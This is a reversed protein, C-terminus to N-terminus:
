PSKRSHEVIAQLTPSEFYRTPNFNEGSVVAVKEGCVVYLWYFPIPDGEFSYIAMVDCKVGRFERQEIIPDPRDAVSFRDLERSLFIEPSQSTWRFNVQLGMERTAQPFPNLRCSRDDVNGEQRLEFMEYTDKLEGVVCTSPVNTGVESVEEGFLLNGFADSGCAGQGAISLGEQDGGQFEWVDEKADFYMIESKSDVHDLGVVHALEHIMLAFTARGRPEGWAGKSVDEAIYDADLAMVGGLARYQQKGPNLDQYSRPGGWGAVNEVHEYDEHKPLAELVETPYYNILLTSPPNVVPIPENHQILEDTEGVFEFQLGTYYRMSQIAAELVERAGEPENAPNVEYRIPECPSHFGTPNGETDYSLFRFQGNGNYGVTPLLRKPGASGFFDAGGDLIEEATSSIANAGQFWTRIDLRNGPSSWITSNLVVSLVLSSAVFVFLSRLAGNGGSGLRYRIRRINKSPKTPLGQSKKLQRIEKERRAGDASLSTFDNMKCVPCKESAAGTIQMCSNCIKM